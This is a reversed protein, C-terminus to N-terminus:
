IKHNNKEWRVTLSSCLFGEVANLAPAILFTIIFLCLERGQRRRRTQTKPRNENVRKREWQLDSVYLFYHLSELEAIHGIALQGAKRPEGGKALFSFFLTIYKEKSGLKRTWSILIQSRIGSPLEFRPKARDNPPVPRTIEKRLKDLSSQKTFTHKIGISPDTRLCSSHWAPGEVTSSQPFTVNTSITKNHTTKQVIGEQVAEPLNGTCMTLFLFIQRKADKLSSLFYSDCAYVVHRM